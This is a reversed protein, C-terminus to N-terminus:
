KYANGKLAIDPHPLRLGSQDKLLSPEIKLEIHSSWNLSLWACRWEYLAELTEAVSSDPLDGAVMGDACLEIVLQLEISGDIASKWSRCVPICSNVLTKGDTFVLIKLLLEQPLDGFTVRSM